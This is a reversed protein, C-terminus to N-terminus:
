IKGEEYCEKSCFNLIEEGFPVELVAEENAEDVENGCECCEVM